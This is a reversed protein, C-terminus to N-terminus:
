PRPLSRLDLTSDTDPDHTAETSRFAIVSAVAAGTLTTPLIVSRVISLQRVRVEQLQSVPIAIEEGEAWGFVTDSIVRPGDVIMQEGDDLTAWMRSPSNAELYDGPDKVRRPGSMCAAAVVGAVLVAFTKKM